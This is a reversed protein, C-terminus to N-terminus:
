MPTDFEGLIPKTRAESAITCGRSRSISTNRGHAGIKSASALWGM